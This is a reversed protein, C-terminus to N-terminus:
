QGLPYVWGAVRGGTPNKVSRPSVDILTYRDGIAFLRVQRAYRRPSQWRANSYNQEAVSVRGRGPDVAVVVAVHGYQWKPDQRDAYYVILDGVRPPRQATGNISRALPVPKGTRINQAETLYIIDVAGEVDGFALDRRLMWWKRAYEVCQYTTGIYRLAAQHPDRAHVSVAGTDLDLFSYEPDICTAACNSRGQVGNASGLVTGFKTVCGVDCADRGAAFDHKPASQTFAPPKALLGSGDTNPLPEAVASAQTLTPPAAEKATDPATRALSLPGQWLLGVLVLVTVLPRRVMIM